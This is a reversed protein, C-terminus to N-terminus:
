IKKLDTNMDIYPGLWAEKKFKMVRHIKKWSKTSTKCETYICSKKKNIICTPKLNKLKELKWEKQYFHYIMFNKYNKLINFVLKCFTDKIVIKMIALPSIKMLSQKRLGNLVKHLDNKHWQGNMCIIWMGIRIM